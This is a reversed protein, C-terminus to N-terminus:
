CRRQGRGMFLYYVGGRGWNCCGFIVKSMASTELPAFDGEGRMKGNLFVLIAQHNYPICLFGSLWRALCPDLALYGGLAHLALEASKFGLMAVDWCPIRSLSM